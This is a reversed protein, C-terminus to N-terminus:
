DLDYETNALAGKLWRPLDPDLFWITGHRSEMVLRPRAEFLHADLRASVSGDYVEVVDFERIARHLNSMSATYTERIVAASTGHGGMDVRNAVREVCQEADAAIYTLLIRFGRERAREAQDFTIEKALTVEISFSRGDRIHDEVFATYEALARERVAPIISQSSGANLERRRDDINFSDSQRARIPFFTSKGSGQPGAVLDM